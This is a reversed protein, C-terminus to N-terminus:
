WLCGAGVPKWAVLTGWGFVVVFGAVVAVIAVSIGSKPTEFKKVFQSIGGM